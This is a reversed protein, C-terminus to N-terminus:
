QDCRRDRRRSGTRFWRLSRAAGANPAALEKWLRRDPIGHFVFAHLPHLRDANDVRHTLPAGFGFVNSMQCRLSVQLGFLAGDAVRPRHRSCQVRMIPQDMAFPRTAGVKTTGSWGALEQSRVIGTKPTKSSAGGTGGENTRSVHEKPFGSIRDLDPRVIRATACSASFRVLQIMGRSGLNANFSSLRCAPLKAPSWTHPGFGFTCRRTV